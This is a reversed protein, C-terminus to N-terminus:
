NEDENSDSEDSSNKDSGKQICQVKYPRTPEYSSDSDSNSNQESESVDNTKRVM